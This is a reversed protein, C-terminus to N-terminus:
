HLYTRILFNAYERWAHDRVLLVEEYLLAWTLIVWFILLRRWARLLQLQLLTESHIDVVPGDVRVHPVQEVGVVAAGRSHRRKGTLGDVDVGSVHRVDDFDVISLAVNQRLVFEGGQEQDALLDAVLHQM